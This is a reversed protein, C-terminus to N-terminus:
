VTSWPPFDAPVLRWACGARLVYVIANVVERTPHTRPRGTTEAAVFPAVSTWEADTLDTSYGRRVM